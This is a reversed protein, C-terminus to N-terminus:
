APSLTRPAFGGDIRGPQPIGANLPSANVLAMVHNNSLVFLENGRRVLCGLTGAMVRNCNGISVGGPAPRVRATFAHAHLEGAADVDVPVGGIERPALAASSVTASSLKERVLVKIALQGTPYGDIEKEGIGVGVINGFGNPGDAAVVALFADPELLMQQEIADRAALVETMHNNGEALGGFHELTFAQDDGVDEPENLVDFDGFEGTTMDDSM